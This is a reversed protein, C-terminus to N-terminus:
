DLGANAINDWYKLGYKVEKEDTQTWKSNDGKM